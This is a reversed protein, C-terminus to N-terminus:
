AMRYGTLAVRAHWSFGRSVARQSTSGLLEALEYAVGGDRRAGALSVFRPKGDVAFHSHRKDTVGTEEDLDAPEVDHEIGVERAPQEHELAQALRPDRDAIKRGDIQHQDGMCVEIVQVARREARQHTVRATQASFTGGQDNGVMNEIQNGVQP